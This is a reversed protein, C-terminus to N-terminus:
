AFSFLHFSPLYFNFHTNLSEEGNYMLTIYSQTAQYNAGHKHIILPPYSVRSSLDQLFLAPYWPFLIRRLLWFVFNIRWKLKLIAGVWSFIHFIALNRYIYKFIQLLNNRFFDKSFEWINSNIYEFAQFHVILYILLKRSTRWCENAKHM